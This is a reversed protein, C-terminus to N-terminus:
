EAVNVRRRRGRSGGEARQALVDRLQPDDKDKDMHHVRVHRQLNDPRPYKHERDPCFPCVYGPSQHVLGHRIMENKRKFGKGGESRSCGKVPCYHPRNQSHVNTHSNLLYQTQFPLANCGPHHCRFNGLSHQGMSQIGSGNPPPLIIAGATGALTGDLSMHRPRQEIPTQQSGPSPGDSSQYGESTSTSDLRSPYRGTDSAQSPRRNGVGFVHGSGSRLFMDGRQADGNPSMPSSASLPFPSVPTHAHSGISMQRVRATPSQTLSSFSQRHVLGNPRGEESMSASRPLDGVMHSIPPLSQATNPSPADNMPTQPQIVPLRNDSQPIQLQHLGTSLEDHLVSSDRRRNASNVAPAPSHIAFAVGTMSKTDGTTPRLGNSFSSVHSVDSARRDSAFPLKRIDEELVSDRHKSTASPLVPATFTDKDAHQHFLHSASQLLSTAATASAPNGTPPQPDMDDEDPGSEDTDSNLAHQSVQHAIDPQNPAMARLLVWDGQTPRAKPRNTKKQRSSLPSVPPHFLRTVVPEPSPPPTAKPFVQILGPSRPYLDEEEPYYLTDTM